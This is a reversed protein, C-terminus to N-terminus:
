KIIKMIVKRKVTIITKKSSVGGGGGGHINLLLFIYISFARSSDFSQIETNKSIIYFVTLALLVSFKFM